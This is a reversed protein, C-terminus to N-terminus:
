NIERYNNNKLNFTKAPELQHMRVGVVTIISPVVVSLGEVIIVIKVLFWAGLHITAL